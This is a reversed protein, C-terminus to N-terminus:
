DGSKIQAEAAVRHTIDNDRSSNVWKHRAVGLGNVVRGHISGEGFGSQIM